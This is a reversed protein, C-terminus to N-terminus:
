RLARAARRRSLLRGLAVLGLLVLSPEGPGAACGLSDGGPTPASGVTFSRVVAQSVNGAADTATVSLTHEGDQLTISPIYSWYGETNAMATGAPSGDMSVQITSGPDVTGDILPRSTAVRDGEHPTLVVLRTPAQTDVTFLLQASAQSTNGAKDTAIAWATYPGDALPEAPTFSWTESNGITVEGAQTDNLFVTV